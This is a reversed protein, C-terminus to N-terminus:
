NEYVKQKLNQIEIQQEQIAKIALALLGNYDLGIYGDTDNGSILDAVVERVDQAIFGYRKQSPNNKMNYSKAELQMIKNTANLDITAINEKARRDSVDSGTFDYKGNAYIYFRTTDNTAFRQEVNRPEHHYSHDSGSGIRLGSTGNFRTEVLSGGVGNIQISRVTSGFSNESETGILENGGSTIRM